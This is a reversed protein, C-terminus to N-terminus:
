SLDSTPYLNHPTPYFVLEDQLVKVQRQLRAVEVALAGGNGDGCLGGRNLGGGHGGTRNVLPDTAVMAMRCAFKLTSQTQDAHPLSPWVCAVLATRCNGGLSDKLVHTLKSRRYPVHGLGGGGGGADSAGASGAKAGLQAKATAKDTPTLALVVQELASLSKNIFSAERLVLGSAGTKVARESGTLAFSVAM